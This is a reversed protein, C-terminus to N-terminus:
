GAAGVARSTPAAVTDDMFWQITFASLGIVIMASWAVRYSGTLDYSLGGLWAGAFSGVQHSLFMVGYLMNFNGLGFLRGILGSVLPAVSLWLFGMTAAFVLTTAPTVTASVYIVIALTRFLYILALLRKQSFRSGAWGVCLSGIANGLGILGLASASVSAPIGCIALFLPLHNIIFQLQFGCAFFAIAMAVYGKHSAAESLAEGASLALADAIAGRERRDGGIALGTLIMLGAVGAFCLLAVRWDYAAILAQGLPALVMTGISGAASVIGVYVSRREPAAAQSVVGLLVGFGTGGIGLGNIAAGLDFSLASTGASMLMLGLVYLLASGIIVPRAGFRDGLLGVFPASLGWVINQLAMAFGYAAVTLGIDRTVPAGFLGLSQRLGTSLSLTIAALTVLLVLRSRAAPM